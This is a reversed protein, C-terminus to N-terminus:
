FRRTDALSHAPKSVFCLALVPPVSRSCSRTSRPSMARRNASRTTISFKARLPRSEFHRYPLPRPRLRFKKGGALLIQAGGGGIRSVRLLPAPGGAPPEKQM